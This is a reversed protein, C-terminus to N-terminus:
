HNNRQKNILLSKYFRFSSMARTTPRPVHVSKQLLLKQLRPTLARSQARTLEEAASAIVEPAAKFHMRPDLGQRSVLDSSEQAYAAGARVRATQRAAPLVDDFQPLPISPAVAPSPPQSPSVARPQPASPRPPETGLMREAFSPIHHLIPRPASLAASRNDPRMDFSAADSIGNAARMVDTLKGGGTTTNHKAVAARTEENTEETNAADPKAPRM